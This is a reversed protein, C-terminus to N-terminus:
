GRESHIPAAILMEYTPCIRYAPDSPGVARGITKYFGANADQLRAAEAASFYDHAVLYETFYHFAQLTSLARVGDLGILSRCGQALYHDLRTKNLGFPGSSKKGEEGWDWYELLAIALFRAGCWSLGKTRRAWGTFNWGVDNHLWENKTDKLDLGAEARPCSAMKVARGLWDRSKGDTDDLLGPAL